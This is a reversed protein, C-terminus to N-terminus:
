CEAKWKDRDYKSHALVKRIFLMQRNFHIRTIVRYKNGGVNFVYCKGVLDVAPFVYKLEALNRPEIRSLKRYLDRLVEESNNEREWFDRLARISLIRM